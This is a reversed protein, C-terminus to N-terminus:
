SYVEVADNIQQIQQKIIIKYCSIFHKQFDM